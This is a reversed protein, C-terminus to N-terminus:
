QMGTMFYLMGLLSAILGFYTVMWWLRAQMSPYARWRALVLQREFEPNRWYDTSLYLLTFATAAITDIADIMPPQSSYGSLVLLAMAFTLAAAPNTRWWRPLHHLDSLFLVWLLILSPEGFWFTCGILILLGAYRVRDGVVQCIRGGDFPQMPLLNFLNIWLGFVAAAQLMPSRTYQWGAVCIVTALTGVLPGAAGVMAEEERNIVPPFFILAGLFPLFVPVPTAFGLRRLAWVHGMEHILLMGILCVAVWPSMFMDYVLLSTLFSGSAVLFKTVKVAKLVGVLKSSKILLGLLSPSLRPKRAM